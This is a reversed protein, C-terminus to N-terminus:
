SHEKNVCVPSVAIEGVAFKRGNEASKGHNKALSGDFSGRRDECRRKGALFRQKLTKILCKGAVM